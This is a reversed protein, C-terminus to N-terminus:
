YENTNLLWDSFDIIKIGEYDYAGDFTNTIIMKPYADKIKLLPKYEREFTKEDSIDSCVQIYNKEHQKLAVFDVERGEEQSTYVEYGRRLLEIAVVNELTRGVNLNKIGLLAYRLSHDALYYKEQGKLYTKGSVDYRRVKYFAFANTLFKLYDSVTAHNTKGYNSSIYNAINRSSTECSSNDILYDAIRELLEPSKIKYKDVIDRVILTNFVSKLYIRKDEDQNYVYSGAFGGEKLYRKFAEKKDSLAYYTCFESFSFPYVEIPFVRGTFLTALDSSLLFANSGTIYIDWKNQSHLSNIVTEFGSCSQVEDICLLNSVNEIYQKEVYYNLAHYERYLEFSVDNFNIHVINTKPKQKKVEAIFAELLMSKGSRRVGTIVKIDPTGKVAFLKKLYYTREITKM